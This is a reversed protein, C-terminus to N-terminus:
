HRLALVWVWAERYDQNSKAHLESRWYGRLLISTEITDIYEIM